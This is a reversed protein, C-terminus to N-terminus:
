KLKIVYNGRIPLVTISSYDVTRPVVGGHHVSGVIAMEEYRSSHIKKDYTGYTWFYDLNFDYIEYFEGKHGDDAIVKGEYESPLRWDHYGAYGRKNFGKLWEVATYYDVRRAKSPIAKPMMMGTRLHVIVEDGKIKKVEFRNIWKGFGEVAFILSSILIFLTFIYFLFNKSYNKIKM